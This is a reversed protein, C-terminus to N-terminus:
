GPFSLLDAVGPTEGWGSLCPDRGGGARPGIAGAGRRAFRRHRHGARRGSPGVAGRGEALHHGDLDRVAPRDVLVGPIVRPTADTGVYALHAASTASLLEQAGPGNLEADIDHQEM